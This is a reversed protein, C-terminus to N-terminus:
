VSLIKLSKTLHCTIYIKWVLSVLPQETNSLFIINSERRAKKRCMKREGQSHLLAQWAAGVRQEQWQECCDAPSASTCFPSVAVKLHDLGHGARGSLLLFDTPYILFCSNQAIRNHEWLWLFLILGERPWLELFSQFPVKGCPFPCFCVRWPPAPKWCRGFTLSLFRLWWFHSNNYNMCSAM